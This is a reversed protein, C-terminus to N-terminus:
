PGRKGCFCVRRRRAGLFLSVAVAGLSVAGPEPIVSVQFAKMGAGNGIFWPAGGFATYGFTGNISSSLNCWTSATTDSHPLLTV